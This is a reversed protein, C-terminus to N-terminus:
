HHICLRQGRQLMSGSVRDPQSSLRHGARVWASCLSSPEMEFHSPDHMLWDSAFHCPGFPLSHPLVTGKCVCQYNSNDTVAKKLLFNSNFLATAGPLETVTGELLHAPLNTNVLWLSASADKEHLHKIQLPGHLPADCSLRM